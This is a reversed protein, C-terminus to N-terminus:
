GSNKSVLRVVMKKKIEGTTWVDLTYHRLNFLLLVTLSHFSKSLYIVDLAIGNDEFGTIKDHLVILDILDSKDRTVRHQSNVSLLLM